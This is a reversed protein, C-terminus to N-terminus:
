YFVSIAVAMLLAMTIAILHYNSKCSSICNTGAWPSTYEICSSTILNILPKPCVPFKSLTRWKCGGIFSFAVVYNKINNLTFNLVSVRVRKVIYLIICVVVDTDRYNCTNHVINLIIANRIIVSYARNNALIRLKSVCQVSTCSRMM